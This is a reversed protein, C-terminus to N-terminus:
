ASWAGACARAVASHPVPPAATGGFVFVKQENEATTGNIATVVYATVTSGNGNAATWSVGAQNAGGTAAPSGPASPVACSNPKVSARTNAAAISGSRAALAARKARKIKEFKYIATSKGYQRGGIREAFLNQIYSDSM